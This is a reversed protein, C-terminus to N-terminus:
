STSRTRSHKPDAALEAILADWERRVHTVDIRDMADFDTTYFRPSLMTDERAIRTTENITRPADLVATNV